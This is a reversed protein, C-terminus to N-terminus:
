LAAEELPLSRKRPGRTRKTPSGNVADIVAKIDLEDVSQEYRSKATLNDGEGNFELITIKYTM